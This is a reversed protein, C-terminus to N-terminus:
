AVKGAAQYFRWLKMGGRVNAMHLKDIDPDALIVRDHELVENVLRDYLMASGGGTLIIADWVARGGARSQYAERIQNLLLYSAETVENECNIQQGAGSFKGIRIAARFRDKPIDFATRFLEPNNQRVANEFDSEIRNIGLPVSLSVNYDLAGNPMVGQFDTTGGGIDIVLTNCDKIDKREYGKGDQTLLVNMLGGVPEDFTYVMDVGIRTQQEGIQIHWDGLAADSLADSYQADRPSHSAFLEIDTSRPYLRALAIASLVGYYEKTYRAAGQQRNLNGRRLAANGYAFAAGNVLAYGEPVEVNRSSKSHRAVIQDFETTTLAILAHPFDDEKGSTRSKIISNGSDLIAISM